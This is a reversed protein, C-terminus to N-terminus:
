LYRKVDEDLVKLLEQARTLPAEDPQCGDAKLVQLMPEVMHIMDALAQLVQPARVVIAANAARKLEVERGDSDLLRIQRKVGGSGKEWALRWPHPSAGKM